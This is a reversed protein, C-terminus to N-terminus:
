RAARLRLMPPADLHSAASHATVGEVVAAIALVRPGIVAVPATAVAKPVTAVRPGILLVPAIEV